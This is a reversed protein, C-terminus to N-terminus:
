DLHYAFVRTLGFALRPALLLRRRPDLQFITFAFARTLGFARRLATNQLPTTTYRARM